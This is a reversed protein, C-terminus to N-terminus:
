TDGFPGKVAGDTKYETAHILAKFNGDQDDYLALLKEPYKEPEGGEETNFNVM